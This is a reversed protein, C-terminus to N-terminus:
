LLISLVPTLSPLMSIRLLWISVCVASSISCPRRRLVTPKLERFHHMRRRPLLWWLTHDSTRARVCCRCRSRLAILPALIIVEMVRRIAPWDPEPFDLYECTGANLIIQDLRGFEDRLRSELSQMSDKSTTDCAIATVSPYKEELSHLAEENRASVIVRHGKSAFAEALSQGLGSSAGTVWIVKADSDSVTKM